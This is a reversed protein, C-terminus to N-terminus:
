LLSHLPVMKGRLLMSDRIREGLVNKIKIKVYRSNEHNFNLIIAHYSCTIPYIRCTVKPQCLKLLYLANHQNTESRRDTKVGINNPRKLRRVNLKEKCKIPYCLNLCVNRFM